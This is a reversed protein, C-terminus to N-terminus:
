HHHNLFNGMISMLAIGLIFLIVSIHESEKNISTEHMTAIYIFTGAAISDAYSQLLSGHSALYMNSFIGAVIGIPTMITFIFFLLLQIRITLSSTCLKLSLAISALSKHSVIAIFLIMCGNITPELGLAYGEIISHVSLAFILFLPIIFNTNIKNIHHPLCKELWMLIAFSYACISSVFFISDSHYHSHSYHEIAEPLLHTFGAGLFIGRAFADCETLYVTIKKSIKKWFVPLGTSVTVLLICALLLLKLEFIEM